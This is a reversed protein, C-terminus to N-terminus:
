ATGEDEGDAKGNRETAPLFRQRTFLLPPLVSEWGLGAEKLSAGLGFTRGSDEAPNGFHPSPTGM